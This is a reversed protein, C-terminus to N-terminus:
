NKDKTRLNAITLNIYVVKDPFRGGSERLCFRITQHNTSHMMELKINRNDKQYDDLASETHKRINVFKHDFCFLVLYLDPPVVLSQAVSDSYKTYLQFIGKTIVSKISVETSHEQILKSEILSVRVGSSFISIDSRGNAIQDEQVVTFKKPELSAKLWTLLSATLNNEYFLVDNKVRYLNSNNTINQIGNFITTPLLGITKSKVDYNNFADALLGIKFALSRMKEPYIYQLHNVQHKLSRIKIYIYQSNRENFEMQMLNQHMYDGFLNQLELLEIIIIGLKNEPDNNIPNKNKIDSALSTIESLSDTLLHLPEVTKIIGAENRFVIIYPQYRSFLDQLVDQSVPITIFFFLGPLLKINQLHKLNDILLVKRIGNALVLGFDTRYLNWHPRTSNVLSLDYNISVLSENITRILNHTYNNHYSFRDLIGFRSKLENIHEILTKLYTYTTSQAVKQHNYSSWERAIGYIFDCEQSELFNILQNRSRNNNNFEEEFRELKRCFMHVSLCHNREQDLLQDDLFLETNKNRSFISIQDMEMLESANFDYFKSM